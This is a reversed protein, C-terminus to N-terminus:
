VGLGPIADLNHLVVLLLDDCCNLVSVGDLHVLVLEIITIDVGVVQLIDAIPHEVVCLNFRDWEILVSFGINVYENHVCVFIIASDVCVIALGLRLITDSDDYDALLWRM